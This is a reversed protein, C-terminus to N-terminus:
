RPNDWPSRTRGSATRRRAHTPSVRRRDDSDRVPLDILTGRGFDYGVIDLAEHRRNARERSAPRTPRGRDRRAALLNPADNPSYRPIIGSDTKGPEVVPPRRPMAACRPAPRSEAIRAIQVRHQEAFTKLRLSRADRSETPSAQFCRLLSSALFERAEALTPLKDIVQLSDTGASLSPFGLTLTAPQGRLRCRSTATRTLIRRRAFGRQTSLGIGEGEPHFRQSRSTPPQVFPLHGRDDEGEGKRIANASIGIM